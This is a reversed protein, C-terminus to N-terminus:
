EKNGSGIGRLWISLIGFVVPFVIFTPMFNTLLTGKGLPHIGIPPPVCNATCLCYTQSAKILVPPMRRYTGQVRLIVYLFPLWRFTFVKTGFVSELLSFSKTFIVPYLHPALGPSFYSGCWWQWRGSVAVNNRRLTIGLTMDKLQGMQKTLWPWSPGDLRGQLFRSIECSLLTALFKVTM